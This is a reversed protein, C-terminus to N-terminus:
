LVTLDSSGLTIIDAKCILSSLSAGSRQSEWAWTAARGRQSNGGRAGNSLDASQMGSSEGKAQLEHPQLHTQHGGKGTLVARTSEQRYAAPRGPAAVLDEGTNLDQAKHITAEGLHQHLLCSVTFVM